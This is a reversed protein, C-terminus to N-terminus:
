VTKRISVKYGLNIILNYLINAKSKKLRTTISKLSYFNRRFWMYGDFLEEASMNKPKFAVRTKGNYYSWDDTLLRGEEKLQYYLPTKPLPTLISVTVGDVGLYNCMDLTTKFVKKTDTDFGFIIGAQVCIGYKHVSDILEKYKDVNNVGKNVSQLTEKSFSELGVFFYICGSKQALSVLEEDKCRELTVQAAWKKNLKGLEKLLEKAYEIDGFFNDDWFVFFKSKSNKIDEIVEDIPRKRFSDKYIQKLNCYACSYPCGRTAFVAGKTFWRRKILDRRPIPIGQLTPTNLCRYESDYNGYYFEELFRPWSGEAEGIIVVDCHERVEEPLLTAHPGGFVVKSGKSRFTKSLDYCHPANATNVTIAVLDYYKEFPIKQNYEDILAIEYKNEDIFAALYPMTIQIFNNIQRKRFRNIDKNEPTIMLISKKM